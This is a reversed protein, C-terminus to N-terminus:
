IISLLEYRRKQEKLIDEIERINAYDENTLNTQYNKCKNITEILKDYDHKSKEVKNIESDKIEYEQQLQKILKIIVLKELEKVQNEGM